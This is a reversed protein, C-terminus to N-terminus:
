VTWVTAVRSKLFNHAFYAVVVITLLSFLAPLLRFIDVLSAGTLLQSIGALYFAIPPYSFPINDLNYSTYAPLLFGDRQIDQVMTYFLGGDNLPFDTRLVFYLRLILGLGIAGALGPLYLYRAAAQLHISSSVRAVASVRSAGTAGGVEM